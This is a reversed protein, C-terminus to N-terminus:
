VGTPTECLLAQGLIPVICCRARRGGAACIYRFETASSPISPTSNCDLDAIGLVDTDCCQANSYLGGPCADYASSTSTPVPTSSYARKPPAPLDLPSAVVVTAFIAAILISFQM